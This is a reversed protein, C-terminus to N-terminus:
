SLRLISKTMKDLAQEINEMSNAFILRLYGEGNAGFANGPLVAVGAEELLYTALVDSSLGLSKVNPFAYFAGDPKNCSVGPIANLGEVLLDRRSQYEALVIEVFDQPGTLAEVGAHQTFDATCGVSHTLLLGVKEALPLPMIGFGLRWGTMSYTKSFGDIIITREMMGPLSAITPAARNDFVLSSYIEDSM